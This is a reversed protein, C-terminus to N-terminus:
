CKPTNAIRASRRRESSTGQVIPIVSEQSTTPTLLNQVDEVVSGDNSTLDSDDFIGTEEPFEEFAEAEPSIYYPIHSEGLESLMDVIRQRQHAIGFDYIHMHNPDILYLEAYICTYFGCNYGDDQTNYSVALAREVQVQAPAILPWTTNVARQIYDVVDPTLRNYGPLSDYFVANRGPRYMAIAFHGPFVIPILLVDIPDQNMGFNSLTIDANFQNANRYHMVAVNRENITALYCLYIYLSDSTMMQRHDMTLEQADGQAMNTGGERVIACGMDEMQQFLPDPANHGPDNLEIRGFDRDIERWWQDQRDDAENVAPIIQEAQEVVEMPAPVKVKPKRGRKAPQLPAAFQPSSEVSDVVSTANANREELSKRAKALNAVKAQKKTPRGKKPKPPCLDSSSESVSSTESASDSVDVDMEFNSDDLFQEIEAHSLATQAVGFRSGAAPEPVPLQVSGSGSAQHAPVVGFRSGVASEPVPLQVSGSGSAQHAIGGMAPRGADSHAIGGMAPRGADSHAIGGMAPRGADSHAIGGMAPRGADLHAIGGMEPRGADSHAIGGMAPRGAEVRGVEPVSAGDTLCGVDPASASENALCGTDLASAGDVPLQGLLPGNPNTGQIAEVLRRANRKHTKQDEKKRRQKNVM